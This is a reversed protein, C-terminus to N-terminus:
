DVGISVPLRKLPMGRNGNIHFSAPGARAFQAIFQVLEPNMFGFYAAISEALNKARPAYLTSEHHAQHILVAQWITKL